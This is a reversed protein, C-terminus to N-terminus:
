RRYWAEERLRLHMLRSIKAQGSESPHIGDAQYDGRDYCVGAGNVEGSACAPAWLYAGWGYWAGDVDAHEALWANLAHGEEYSLPEGRDARDNFGGYSRSSTYVAM